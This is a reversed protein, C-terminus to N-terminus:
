AGFLPITDPAYILERDVAKSEEESMPLFKGNATVYVAGEEDRIKGEVLALRRAVRVPWAEVIMEKGVPFPKLFRITLEGTVFMRNSKLSPAWGMTEDLITCLVGGHVIGKYSQRHVEPTHRVRVIEGDAKFIIKHGLPNDEGCVYCWTTHPLAREM